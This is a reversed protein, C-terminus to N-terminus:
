SAKDQRVDKYCFHSISSRDFLRTMLAVLLLSFVLRGWFIANFDAGLLLILLTDEILSHLLSLMMIASFVDKPDVRGQRAEDILIGGGFAMGLTIGTITITMASKAIGLFRLLPSLCWAMLAEVGVIRLIRLFALLGAVILFIIGFSLLQEKVWGWWTSAVQIQPQWLLEATQDAPWLSYAQKLVFAFLLAGGIRLLLSFMLSVGAQRAIAVEVPLGHAILMMGGLISIQAQSLPEGLQVYILMGAYINSLMTVAWVLSMTDPLGVWHMLPALFEALLESFGWSDLLKVVLVVPLM